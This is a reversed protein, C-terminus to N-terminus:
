KFDKRTSSCLWYLPQQHIPSVFFWPMVLWSISRIETIDRFWVALTFVNFGHSVHHRWWISVNEAYSAMQAPFEGTGPSNRACLGTVRLKSTKKSKRRFLRNLLCGHPQHNSVGAHDNHRWRLSTGGNRLRCRLICKRSHSHIFHLKLNWKLKNRLNSNVMKWCQNLSHSEGVLRCAM